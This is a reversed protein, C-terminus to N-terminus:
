GGHTIPLIVSVKTGVGPTSSIELVGGHLETLHKVLPLGLGTGEYRRALSSDTQRFPELAIPIEEREMGIGTDSVAIHISRGVQEASVCVSGSAPTFKVANSLLNILIQQLRLEDAWLAPLTDPVDVVLALNATGARPRIFGICLNIMAQLDVWGYSLDLRGAEIRSLDLISNIVQLLHRGSHHIDNAYEIQRDPTPRPRDRKLLESFGIIANLPTRLEHSMNALFASKARNAQEAQFKAERLAIEVFKRETIDTCAGTMYLPRGVDDHFIKGQESLWRITGDPWVVRYDLDFDTGERISRENAAQLLARDDPHIFQNMEDLPGCRREASQGVLRCLSEDRELLNSCLDWRYTGTRSATLAAALRERSDQAEEEAQRRATVDHFYIALGEESPHARVEYWSRSRPYLAEFITPRRDVMVRHCERWFVTDAADPFIDWFCEGLVPRDKPFFAEAAGNFYAIRWDRDLAVVGDFTSELVDNLRAAARKAEIQAQRLASVDAIMALGGTFRGDEDHDPSSSIIAHLVSDDKRKLRYEFRGAVGQRHEAWMRRVKNLDEPAVFDFLARGLLEPVTYGLMEALRHNVYTTRADADSVCIGHLSSEIIRRHQQDKHRLRAETERQVTVEHGIGRYGRFRGDDDFIPRGSMSFHCLRGSEVPAAFEFNRFPRQAEMDQKRRLWTPDGLNAGALEWLTRGLVKGAKMPMDTPEASFCDVSSFRLAEDMEWMCALASGASGSLKFVERM